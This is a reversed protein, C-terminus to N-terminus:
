RKPLLGRWDGGKTTKIYIFMAWKISCLFAEVGAFVRALLNGKEDYNVM